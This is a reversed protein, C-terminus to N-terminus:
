IVPGEAHMTLNLIEANDKGQGGPNAAVLIATDIRRIKGAAVLAQHKHSQQGPGRCQTGAGGGRVVKFVETSFRRQAIRIAHQGNGM